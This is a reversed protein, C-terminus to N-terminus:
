SKRATGVSELHYQKQEVDKEGREQLVTFIRAINTQTKRLQSPDELKETVRQSRLDFLHRRLRDLENHLEDTKLERLDGIKM